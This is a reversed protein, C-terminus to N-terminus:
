LHSIVKAPNGAVIVDSPVDKTVVAGSAVISNDGINRVQALIIAGMGIWVNSGIDKPIKAPISKPNMGHDHSLILTYESIVTNDGITLDGSFDLEVHKNIQTYNGIILTSGKIESYANVKRGLSVNNGLFINGPNRISVGRQVVLNSGCKGLNYKWFFSYFKEYIKTYTVSAILFFFTIFGSLKFNWYESIKDKM